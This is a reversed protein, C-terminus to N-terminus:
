SHAGGTNIRKGQSGGYRLIAATSFYKKTISYKKVTAYKWSQDSAYEGM